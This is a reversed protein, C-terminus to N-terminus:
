RGDGHVVRRAGDQLQYQDRRQVGGPLQVVGPRRARGANGRLEGDAAGAGRRRCRDGRQHPEGDNGADDTFSVRVTLREGEDADVPTYSSGTAGQIDAGARIWQYAFSANDLGDADSIGSTSATLAEGVQATGSITPAGAAATNTPPAAAVADTAASTLSEENGADDTFSVRVTLREGEDADVPTYTAGTAGQWHRHGHPDVPLAFSANDLGDADSIGSTSATLEEGVQPTGSIAPAGQRRRTERQSARRAPSRRRCAAHSLQRRNEDSTCIAGSSM